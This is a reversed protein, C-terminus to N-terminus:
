RLKLMKEAEELTADTIEEEAQSTLPSNGMPVFYENALPNVEDIPFGMVERRENLTLWWAPGLARTQMEMDEQLESIASTDFDVFLRGEYRNKIYLNFADRFQVLAPIVANTYVASGAEKM